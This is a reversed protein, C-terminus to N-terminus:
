LSAACQGCFKQSEANLSRCKQCRVKVTEKGRLNPMEELADNVMGGAARAWPELDERSREPDPVLGSGALGRRAVVMTVMGVAILIMSTIGVHSSTRM